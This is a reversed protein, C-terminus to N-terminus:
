VTIYQRLTGFLAFEMILYFSHNETFHGFYQIIYRSQIQSLHVAERDMM